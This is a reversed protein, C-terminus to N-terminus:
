KRMYQPNQDLYNKQFHSFSYDLDHPRQNRTSKFKIYLDYTQPEILTSRGDIMIERKIINGKTDITRRSINMEQSQIVEQKLENLQQSATNNVLPKEPPIPAQKPLPPFSFIPHEQLVIGLADEGMVDVMWSGDCSPYFNYKKDDDM